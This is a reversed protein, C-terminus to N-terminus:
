FESSPQECGSIVASSARWQRKGLVSTVAKPAAECGISIRGNERM